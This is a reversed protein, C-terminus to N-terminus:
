PFLSVSCCPNRRRRAGHIERPVDLRDERRIAELTVSNATAGEQPPRAPYVATWWDGAPDAALSALYQGVPSAQEEDAAVVAALVALQRRLERSAAAVKGQATKRQEQLEGIEKLEALGATAKEFPNSKTDALPTDCAPCHDGQTAQLALVATYLDKFSVQSSKAELQAVIGTLDEQSQRSAEFANLLRQRSLGIAAPPVANLIGELEQLRCPANATGILAKLGSYTIDASYTLALAAEDAALGLLANEESNVTAQDAALANRKGTLVIQKAAFLM